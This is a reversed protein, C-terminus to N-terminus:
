ANASECAVAFAEAVTKDGIEIALTSSIFKPLKTELGVTSPVTAKVAADVVLRDPVPTTSSEPEVPEAAFNEIVPSLLPTKEIVRGVETVSVDVFLVMVTSM